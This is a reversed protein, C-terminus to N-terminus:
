KVSQTIPVVNNNTMNIKETYGSSLTIGKFGRSQKGNIFVRGGHIPLDSNRLTKSFQIETMTHKIGTTLCWLKYAMYLNDTSTSAGSLCKCAEQVFRSLPFMDEKIDQKEQIGAQSETFKGNQARLERLGRLSEQAIGEIESLLEARLNPNERGAFSQTFPFILMRYALAGSADVFEPMNNTSLIFRTSLVRTQVPKFKVDYTVADGGIIAKLMSLVADRSNFNVNHADPILAVSSTSMKHLVGDKHINGLAPSVTNSEGVLARIIDTLVGKGGRSKGIFIAFKQLTIDGTMLYGMWQFLQRKQDEDWGLSSLFQHFKPCKANPNYDYQLTNFTFFNRDHPMLVPNDDTLDVMGNKFVVLNNTNKFSNNLYQGAQVHAVNTVDCFVNFVGRTFSDAPKLHNYARYIKAKVVDDAVESWCNNKYEYFVGSNRIINHGHFLLGDVVQALDSHSSKVDLKAGVMVADDHSLRGEFPDDTVQESVMADVDVVPVEKKKNDEGIKRNEEWGGVPPPLESQSSFVGVATKCGAASNAYYYAREINGYFDGIENQQWPPECRHNYNEWMIDQAIELPIGHDHAWGAVKFVTHSGSGLIAIPATTLLWQKFQENYRENYQYGSGEQIGKRKTLWNNLEADQEATLPFATEIEAVTYKHDDDTNDETITYQAPVAPNKYHNFGAVRVVRAPDTVQHDTGHYIAIRKQLAKFTDADTIDSVLWFAHGHTEDRKQIFHPTLSWEPETMGDFDAFLGRFGIINADKRGIGDSHNIGVYVGCHLAQVQNLYDLSEDLTAVFHKALEPRPAENKPDHFVQWTVANSDSGTLLRLFLRVQEINHQM